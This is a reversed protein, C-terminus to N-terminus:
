SMRVKRLNVFHSKPKRDMVYRCSPWLHQARIAAVYLLGSISWHIVWRQPTELPLCALSSTVLVLNFSGHIPFVLTILELVEPLLLGARRKESWVSKTTTGRSSYLDVFDSLSLNIFSFCELFDVLQLHPHPSVFKGAWLSWLIVLLVSFCMLFM